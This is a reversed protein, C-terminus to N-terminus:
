EAADTEKMREEAAVELAALTMNFEAESINSIDSPFCHFVDACVQHVRRLKDNERMMKKYVDYSSETSGGLRRATEIVDQVVQKKLGSIWEGDEALNLKPEVLAAIFGLKADIKKDYRVTGDPMFITAANDIDALEGMTYGKVLVGKDEGFEPIPVYETKPKLTKLEEKSITNM